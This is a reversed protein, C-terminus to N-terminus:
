NHAPVPGQQPEPVLHLDLQPSAIQHCVIQWVAVDHGALSLVVRLVGPAPIVLGNFDAVARAKRRVRFDANFPAAFLQQEGLFVRLEIAPNVPEGEDLELMAVIALTPVVIPFSPASIEELVHFVSVSNLRADLASSQGCVFLITRM